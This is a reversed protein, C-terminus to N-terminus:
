HWSPMSARNVRSPWIRRLIKLGQLKGFAVLSGWFTVTGILGSAATAILVDTTGTGLRLLEAGAVLTSALGGFGNFLAVLQPMATMQIRVALVAGILAGIVFGLLILGFWKVDLLPLTVVFALLMGLAGYLNGRVATRPHAMRKLGFIFLASAALYSLKVLSSIEM